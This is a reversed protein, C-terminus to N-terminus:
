WAIFIYFIICAFLIYIYLVFNLYFLLVTCVQTHTALWDKWNDLSASLPKLFEWQDTAGEIEMTEGQHLWDANAATKVKNFYDFKNTGADEVTLVTFSNQRALEIHDSCESM